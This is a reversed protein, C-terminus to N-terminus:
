ARKINMYNLYGYRQHWREMKVNPNIDIAYIM